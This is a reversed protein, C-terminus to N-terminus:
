NGKDEVGVALVGGARSNAHEMMFIWHRSHPLEVLDSTKFHKRYLATSGSAIFPNPNAITTSMSVSRFRPAKAGAKQTSKDAPCNYIEITPKYQFLHGSEILAVNTAGTDVNM